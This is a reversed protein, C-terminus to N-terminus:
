ATPGRVKACAGNQFAQDLATLCDAALLPDRTAVLGAFAAFLDKAPVGEKMYLQALSEAFGMSSLAPVSPQKHLGSGM